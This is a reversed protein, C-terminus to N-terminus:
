TPNFDTGWPETEPSECSEKSKNGKGQLNHPLAKNERISDVGDNRLLPHYIAGHSILEEKTPITLGVNAGFISFDVIAEELIALRLNAAWLNTFRLDAGKLNADFLNAGTMDAHCLNANQLEARSLDTNRLESNSLNARRLDASSMVASNLKAGSFDASHLNAERFNARDIEAYSLNANCLNANCLNAEKLNVHSLNAERLDAFRLNSRSFNARRLDAFQLSLGKIRKLRKISSAGEISIGAIQQVQKRKILNKIQGLSDESGQLTIQISGPSIQHIELSFDQALEQFAALLERVKDKDLDNFNGELKVILGGAGCITEFDTPVEFLLSIVKISINRIWLVLYVLANFFGYGHVSPKRTQTRNEYINVGINPLIQLLSTLGPGSSGELWEMLYYTRLALPVDLSPMIGKPVALAHELEIFQSLPLRNLTDIIQLRKEPALVSLKNVM